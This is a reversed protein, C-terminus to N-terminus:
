QSTEQQCSLFYIHSPFAEGQNKEQQKEERYTRNDIAITNM